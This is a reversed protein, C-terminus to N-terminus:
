EAPNQHQHGPESQWEDICYARLIDKVKKSIEEQARDSLLKDMAGRSRINDELTSVFDSNSKM